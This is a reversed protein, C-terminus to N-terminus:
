HRARFVAAVRRRTPEYLRPEAAERILGRPPPVGFTVPESRRAVGAPEEVTLPVDLTAGGASATFALLLVGVLLCVPTRRRAMDPRSYLLRRSAPSAFRGLLSVGTHEHPWRRPKG